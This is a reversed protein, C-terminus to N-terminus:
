RRPAQAADGATRVTPEPLEWVKLLQDAGGTVVFSAGKPGLAVATVAAIHGEGTAVCTQSAVDWVRLAKDKGGTALLAVGGASAAADACLVQRGDPDLPRSTPTLFKTHPQLLSKTPLATTV